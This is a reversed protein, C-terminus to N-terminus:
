YMHKLQNLEAKIIKVTEFTIQYFQYMNNLKEITNIYLIVILMEVFNVFDCLIISKQCNEHEVRIAMYHVEFNSFWNRQKM